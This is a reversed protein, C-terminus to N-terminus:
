LYSRGGGRWLGTACFFGEVAGFSDNGNSLVLIDADFKDWNLEVDPTGPIAFVFSLNERDASFDVPVTVDEFSVIHGSYDKVVGDTLDADTVRTSGELM